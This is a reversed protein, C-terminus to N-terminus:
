CRSSSPRLPASNIFPSSQQLFRIYMFNAVGPFAYAFCQSRNHLEKLRFTGNHRSQKLPSAGLKSAVPAYAWLIVITFLKANGKGSL